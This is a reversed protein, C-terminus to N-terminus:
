EIAARLNSASAIRCCSTCLFGSNPTGTLSRTVLPSSAMTRDRRGCEKELSSAPWPQTFVHGDPIEEDSHERRWQKVVYPIESIRTGLVFPLGADEIGDQNAASIMGADAVVTVEAIQHATMFAKIVPLMTATEAKNGDFAELMVPFGTADTLLGIIIQPDLRRQKSYGPERFGDGADIEFHLTSVDYLILSAPGLAAHAACATAL